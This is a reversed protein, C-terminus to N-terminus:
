PGKEAALEAVLRGAAGAALWLEPTENLGRGMSTVPIDRARLLDVAADGRKVVTEHRDCIGSERLERAISRAQDPPLKPVAVTTPERAAVTLATITHHSLGRHRRREDAFSVRLCAVSSGGLATIADLIAGQEMGTFGLATATGVVGPGMAVVTVDCNAVHRLAALASYVNVAELDGGFSHGATCTVDILDETVLRKILRSFALPLAARDTMVYGIRLEPRTARIGAVVGAVQSHLSCAVVPMGDITRVDRLTEGHPSEPAEVTHVPMQWPTYRMKVIHGPPDETPVTGDLNWLIFGTGGTGLEMDIGVTNVIVRDGPALPGLMSSWGLAEIEGQSTDVKARLVDNEVAVEVVKGERFLVALAM